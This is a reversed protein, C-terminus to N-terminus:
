PPAGEPPIEFSAGPLPYRMPWIHQLPNCAYENAHEYRYRGPPLPPLLRYSSVAIHSGVPRFTPLPPLPTKGGWQDTLVQHTWGPCLRYKHYTLTMHIRHGEREYHAEGPASFELVPHIPDIWLWYAFIGLPINSFVILLYLGSHKELFKAM